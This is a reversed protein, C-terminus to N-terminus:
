TSNVMVSLDQKLVDKLSNQTTNLYGLYFGVINQMLIHPVFVMVQCLRVYIQGFLVVCFEMLDIHYWLVFSKAAKGCTHSDAAFRASKLVPRPFNGSMLHLNLAQLSLFLKDTM